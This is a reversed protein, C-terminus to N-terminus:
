SSRAARIALAIAAAPLLTGTTVPSYCHRRKKRRDEKKREDGKALVHVIEITKPKKPLTGPLKSLV